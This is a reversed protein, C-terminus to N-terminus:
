AAVSSPEVAAGLIEAAEARLTELGAADLRLVKMAAELLHAPNEDFALEGPVGSGLPVAGLDMARVIEEAVVLAAHVPHARGGVEVQHHHSVLAQIPAPLGWLRTVVGSAAEHIQDLVPALSDLPLVSGRRDDSLALLCAAIGVDHLLGCLFAYESDISSTRCVARMVYATSTSHRALRAMPGDYGKVRFVKMKMAAELVIERLMKLGLRIAAQRLSLIPTRPSYVASQAISLVRAALVPDKELVAEVEGFTINPKQSLSLMELAVAPLMPPQYTPSAFLRLLRVHIDSADMRPAGISAAPNGM